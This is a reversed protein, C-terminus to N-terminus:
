KCLVKGLINNDMVFGYNRSDTSNHYNDGVAFVRNKPIYKCLAMNYYQEDTLPIKKDGVIVNYQSNKIFELRQLEIGCCRKIVMNNNYVYIIIDDIKPKNWQILLKDSFPKVIGYALKNIVVYQGDKLNPEMSKGSIKVIDLVFLKIFIAFIFAFIFFKKNNMM